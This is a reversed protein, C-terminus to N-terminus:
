LSSLRRLTNWAFRLPKTIRWSVTAKVRAVERALTDNAIRWKAMERQIFDTGDFFSPPQLRLQSDSALAVFFLPEPDASHGIISEADGAHFTFQHSASALPRSPSPRPTMLSGYRVKQGFLVHNKFHRALLETFESLSLEKVHFENPRLPLGDLLGREPTSIMLLGGPKLVRKIESLMAEHQDHHEITEFSVVMDVSSNELPICTCDGQRFELGPAVYKARAHLVVDESLDVGIVSKARGALLHSGYGEGCAIDLIDKQEALEGAFAYRHLHELEIDGKVFPVYREGTWSIDTAPNDTQIL